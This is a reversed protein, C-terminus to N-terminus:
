RCQTDPTTAADGDTASTYLWDGIQEGGFYGIAGFVLTGAGHAIWAVPGAVDAPAFWTAFAGGLALAGAWGGAIQSGTRAKNPSQYLRYGDAVAGVVLLTRGGYRLWKRATAAQRMRTEFAQAERFLQPDAAETVIGQDLLYRAFEGPRMRLRVDAGDAVTMFEGNANRSFTSDELLVRAIGGPSERTLRGIDRWMAQEGMQGSIRTIERLHGRSFFPPNNAQHPARTELWQMRRADDAGAMARRQWTEGLAELEATTIVRVPKNPNIAVEVPIEQGTMNGVYPEGQTVFWAVDGRGRAAPIRGAIVDRLLLQAIDPRIAARGPIGNSWPTQRPEWPFPSDLPSWPSGGLASPIVPGIAWGPVFALRAPTDAIDFPTFPGNSRSALLQLAVHYRPGQFYDVRICHVGADLDVSGQATSEPHVGDNDIIVRDDIILRSGDDSTLRFAVNEPNDIEFFGVYKIAFWEFRDTVGPFGQDFTRGPVNLASTYITGQPTLGRFDPLRTAGEELFYINGEFGPATARRQGFGDEEDQGAGTGSALLCAVVTVLGLARGKTRM